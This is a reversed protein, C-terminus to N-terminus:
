KWEDIEVWTVDGLEDLTLNTVLSEDVQRSGASSDLESISSLTNADSVKFKDEWADDSDENLVLQSNLNLGRFFELNM